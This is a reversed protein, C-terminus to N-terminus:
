PLRTKALGAAPYIVGRLNRDAPIPVQGRGFLHIPGRIIRHIIPFIALGGDPTLIAPGTIIKFAPNIKRIFHRIIEVANVPEFM